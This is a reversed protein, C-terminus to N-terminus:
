GYVEIEAYALDKRDGKREEHTDEVEYLGYLFGVTRLEYVQSDIEIMKEM